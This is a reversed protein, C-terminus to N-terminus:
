EIEEACRRCYLKGNIERWGDRCLFKNLCHIAFADTESEVDSIDGCGACMVEAHVCCYIFDDFDTM